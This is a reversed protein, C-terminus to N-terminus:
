SNASDIVVLLFQIGQLASFNFAQCITNYAIGPINPDSFGGSALCHDIMNSNTASVRYRIGSVRYKIGSVRYEIEIGTDSVTLKPYGITLDDTASLFFNDFFFNGILQPTFLIPDSKKQFSILQKINEKFCFYM